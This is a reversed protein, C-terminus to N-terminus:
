QTPMLSVGSVYNGCDLSYGSHMILSVPTYLIKEKGSPIKIMKKFPIAFMLEEVKLRYTRM